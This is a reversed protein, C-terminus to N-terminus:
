NLYGKLKLADEFENVRLILSVIIPKLLLSINNIKLKYGKSKLAMYKQDLEDFICPLIRLALTITLSLDNINVKFLKLPSLLVNIAKITQNINVMKIYIYSIIYATILRILIYSAYILNTVVSNIIATIIFFIVIKKFKRAFEIISLHLTAMLIIYIVLISLLIYINKIYFILTLSLLFLIFNITDKM